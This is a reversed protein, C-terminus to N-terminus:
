EAKAAGKRETVPEALGQEDMWESVRDFDMM